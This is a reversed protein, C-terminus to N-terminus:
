AGQRFYRRLFEAQWILLGATAALVITGTLVGGLDFAFAIADLGLVGCAGVTVGRHRVVGGAFTMVLAALGLSVEIGRSSSDGPSDLLRVLLAVTMGVVALAGAAASEKGRVRDLVVVGILLLLQFGMFAGHATLEDNPALASSTCAAGISAAILAVPIAFPGNRRWVAFAVPLVLAGIAPGTQPSEVVPAFALPVLAGVFIADALLWAAPRAFRLVAAAVALSAAVAVLPWTSHRWESGVYVLAVGAAGILVGATAYLAAAMGSVAGPGAPDDLAAYRELLAKVQEPSVVGDEVWGDAEARLERVFERSPPREARRRYPTM